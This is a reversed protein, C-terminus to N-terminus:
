RRDLVVRGNQIVLVPNRVASIDELPDARLAVLDAVFGPSIRGLDTQRNLVKAAIATAAKLARAPPIGYEVMLKLEHANDGHAFVGADSGCAITVGVDLARRFMAKSDRIRQPVSEDAEKSEGSDGAEDPEGPVWGTYRAIADNASLTPCLTVGHERMFQLTETSAESGHEITSVGALVARRIAENTVAHAAVPRGASRAEDVIANLEEQSFTPTSPDGPRRRYDAYVKVWDAGAAIQERVARRVGTVGDAFAAGETGLERVTTFGAELTARAATVARITRLELSERLVQDNWPMQDYPRRLLHTHLDILGPILYLGTLDLRRADDTSKAYRAPVIELIRDDRILVSRDQLFRQGTEDLVHAGFLVLDSGGAPLCFGGTIWLALFTPHRIANM